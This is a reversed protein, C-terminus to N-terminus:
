RANFLPIPLASPLLASTRATRTPLLVQVRFLEILEYEYFIALSLSLSLTCQALCAIESSQAPTLPVTSTASPATTSNQACVGLALVASFFVTTFKMTIIPVSTRRQLYNISTNSFHALNHTPLLTFSLIFVSVVTPTPYTFKALYSFYSKPLYAPLCPLHELQNVLCRLYFLPFTLFHFTPFTFISTSTSTSTSPLPPLELLLLFPRCSV